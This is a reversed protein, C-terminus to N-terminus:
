PRVRANLALAAGMLLWFTRQYMMDHFAAVVAFALLVLILLERAPDQPQAGRMEYKLVRVLPAVFAFLGVIGLEALLWLPTSYIVLATGSARMYREIFAGLGAGFLPNAMFMDWGGKLSDIRQANSPAYGGAIYDHASHRPMDWTLAPGTWPPRPETAPRSTGTGTTTFLDTIAAAIATVLDVIAFAVWRAAEIVWRVVELAGIVLTPLWVIFAIAVAALGLAAAIRGPKVSRLALTVVIVLALGILGARSATFWIGLMVAGLVVPQWRSEKMTAIVAAIAFLLQLTFANANQAFGEIRYRVIEEPVRLGLTVAAFIVLDLAIIPLAVAVYTRLLIMLGAEGGRSVVLAGTAVYTLLVFWGILRNTLAWTTLGFEFWGHIFAAVILVTMVALHTNFLPLRWAPIQRAKIKDLVFLAAGIFALPDALNVNLQSASLPIHIQFFVAAATSVPVAWTLMTTADVKPARHALAPTRPMTRLLAAVAALIAVVALAVAGILIAVVLATERDLGVAGLAYIASLERVGWGALSIPVSAGLMVIAAAAVVDTFALGPSLGVVAALYAAITLIQIAVSLLLTRTVRWAAGPGINARAFAGASRGWAFLGSVIVALAGGALLKLFAAGGTEVNLSIKGFLYWGGATALALSVAFSVLREYGTILVTGAVPVGRRALVASRAILQGALQFFIAGGLQGLSLAAIADSARMRYGFDSAICSLRVCALLAGSTLACTVTLLTLLSVRSLAQALARLDVMTFALALAVVTVGIAVVRRTRVAGKAPGGIM